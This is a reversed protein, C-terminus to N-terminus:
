SEAQSGFLATDKRLIRRPHRHCALSRAGPLSLSLSPSPQLDPLWFSQLIAAKPNLRTRYSVGPTLVRCLKAFSLTPGWGSRALTKYPRGAQKAPPM